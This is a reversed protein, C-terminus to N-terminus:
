NQGLVRFSPCSKPERVGNKFIAAHLVYLFRELLLTLFRMETDIRQSTLNSSQNSKIHGKTLIKAEMDRGFM